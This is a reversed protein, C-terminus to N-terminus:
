TSSCLNPQATEIPTARARPTPWRPTWSFISTAGTSSVMAAITATHPFPLPPTHPPSLPPCSRVPVYTHYTPTEPNAMHENSRAVAVPLTAELWEGVVARASADDLEALTGASSRVARRRGEVGMTSCFGGRVSLARETMGGGRSAGGRVSLAEYRELLRDLDLLFSPAM